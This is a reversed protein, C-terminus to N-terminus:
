GAKLQFETNARARESWYSFLVTAAVVILPIAISGVTFASKWWEVKLKRFELNLKEREIAVKERELELKRDELDPNPDEPKM